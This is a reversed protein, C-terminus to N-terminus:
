EAGGRLSALTFEVSLRSPEYRIAFGGPFIRAVEGDVRGASEHEITVKDNFDVACESKIMAGIPSINVIEGSGVDERVYIKIPSGVEFREFKRREKATLGPRDGMARRVQRLFKM